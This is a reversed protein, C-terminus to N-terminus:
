EMTTAIVMTAIENPSSIPATIVSGSLSLSIIYFFSFKLSCWFIQKRNERQIKLGNFKIKFKTGNTIYITIEGNIQRVLVKVLKYVLSFQIKIIWIEPFGVM